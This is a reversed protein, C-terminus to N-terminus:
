AWLDQLLECAANVIMGGSAPGIMLRGYYHHAGEVEYGGEPYAKETPVYGVVGNTYAAVATHSAPSQEEIALAHEVFVEGSLGVLAGSGIRLVQVEFPAPEAARKGEAIELVQTEWEVHDALMGLRRADAGSAKAEEWGRRYEALRSQAEEVTPVLVPLELRKSRASLVAETGTPTQEFVEVVAAGLITGLRRADEFAGGVVRSNINGCCGQAFLAHTAPGEAGEVTSRVYGPYDASLYLNNGGLVVAHAAHVCLAFRTDNADVRLVDVFPAVPGELNQGLVMRAGSHERRNVGIQVQGRGWGLQAELLRGAAMQVADACKRLLVDLYAADCKGMGRLHMSAPGSHTHSCCIMVAEPAISARAAVQKRVRQVSEFDLGLLDCCLIALAPKEAADTGLVLARAELPDHVGIAGSRRGAFGTLEVGLPPTIDSVAYGVKLM